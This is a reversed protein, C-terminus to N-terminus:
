EVWNTIMQMDYVNTYGANVLIEYAIASRRGARCYVIIITEKDPLLHLNEELESYNIHLSGDINGADYEEQSRVDLMIVNSNTELIERAQEGTIIRHGYDGVDPTIRDPHLTPMTDEEFLAVLTKAIYHWNEASVSVAFYLRENPLGLDVFLPNDQINVAVMEKPEDNNEGFAAFVIRDKIIEYVEPNTHEVEQIFHEIPRIFRNNVTDSLAREDLIFIDIDGAALMAMFLTANANMVEPDTEMYFLSIGIITSNDEVKVFREILFDRLTEVETNRPYQTYWTISLITSPPPSIYRTYVIGVIVALVLIVGIIHLNFYSWIYDIKEKLNMERLKEREGRQRDKPKNNNRESM